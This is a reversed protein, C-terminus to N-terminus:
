ICGQGGTMLFFAVYKFLELLFLFYERPLCIQCDQCSSTSHWERGPCEYVLEVFILLENPAPM